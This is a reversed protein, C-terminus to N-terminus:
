FLAITSTESFCPYLIGAWSGSLTELLIFDVNADHEHVALQSSCLVAPTINICSLSITPENLLFIEIYYVTDTNLISFVARSLLTHTGTINIWRLFIELHGLIVGSNHLTYATSLSSCYPLIPPATLSDTRKLLQYGNLGYNHKDRRKCLNTNSKGDNSSFEHFPCCLCETISSGIWVQTPNKKSEVM